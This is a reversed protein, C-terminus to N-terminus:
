RLRRPTLYYLIAWIAAIGGVVILAGLIGGEIPGM